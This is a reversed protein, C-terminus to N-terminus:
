SPTSATQYFAVAAGAGDVWLEPQINTMGEFESM